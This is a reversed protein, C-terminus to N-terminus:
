VLGAGGVLNRQSWIKTLRSEGVMQLFAFGFLWARFSVSAHLYVHDISIMPVPWVNDVIDVVRISHTQWLDGLSTEANLDLFLPLWIVLSVIHLLWGQILLDCWSNQFPKFLILVIDAITHATCHTRYALPLLLLIYGGLNCSVWNSCTLDILLCRLWLTRCFIDLPYLDVYDRVNVDMAIVNSCNIATYILFLLCIMMLFQKLISILDIYLQLLLLFLESVTVKLEFLLNILLLPNILWLSTLFNNFIIALQARGM